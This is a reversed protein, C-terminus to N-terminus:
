IIKLYWSKPNRFVTWNRIQMKPFYNKPLLILQDQFFVKFLSGHAFSGYQAVPESHPLRGAEPDEQHALEAAREDLGARLGHGPFAEWLDQYYWSQLQLISFFYKKKHIYNIKQGGLYFPLFNM